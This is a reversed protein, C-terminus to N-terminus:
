IQMSMVEQYAAVLKNRVQTAAQFELNAKQVAIMVDAVSLNPDGVEFANGLRTANQQSANVQDLSEKLVTSFDSTGAGAAPRTEPGDAQAALARMQALLDAASIAGREIM